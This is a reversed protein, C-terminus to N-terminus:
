PPGSRGGAEEERKGRGVWIGEAEEAEGAATKGGGFSGGATRGAAAQPGAAASRGAVSEFRQKRIGGREAEGAPVGGQVLRRKRRRAKGGSGPLVATVEEERRAPGGPRGPGM